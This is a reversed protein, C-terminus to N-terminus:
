QFLHLGRHDRGECLCHAHGCSTELFHGSHSTDESPCLISSSSCSEYDSDSSSKDEEPPVCESSSGHIAEAVTYRTRGQACREMRRLSLDSQLFLHMRSDSLLLPCQVVTELFMQLGKMRHAVQEPGRLHFFPMWPPLKPLEIILANQELSHRLWVFESYRRRVSSWKKRFCMSNTQLCIEYDIYTHWMDEKYVRPDRVTISVFETKSLNELMREM